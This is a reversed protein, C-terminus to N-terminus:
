TILRYCYCLSLVISYVIGNKGFLHMMIYKVYLQKGIIKQNYNFTTYHEVYYKYTSVAHVIHLVQIRLSHYSFIFQNKVKSATVTSELPFIPRMSCRSCVVMANILKLWFRMIMGCQKLRHKSFVVRFFHM